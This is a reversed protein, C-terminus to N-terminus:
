PGLIQTEPLNEPSTATSAWACVFKGAIVAVLVKNEEMYTRLGKRDVERHDRGEIVLEAKSNGFRLIFLITKILSYLNCAELLYIVRFPIDFM